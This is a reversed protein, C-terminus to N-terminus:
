LFRTDNYYISLNHIIYAYEYMIIYSYELFVFLLLTVTLQSVTLDFMDKLSNQYLKCDIPDDFTHCITKILSQRNDSSYTPLIGEDSTGVFIKAARFM